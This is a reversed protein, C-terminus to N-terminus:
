IMQVQNLHNKGPFLPHRCMLEAFVCGVAWLDIGEDYDESALVVEPARYWRTVVYKTWAKNFEAEQDAGPQYMKNKDIGRALGFDCIKLDCNTSVLLNCPKIDRHMIDASHLFLLGRLIQYMFYRYHHDSLAQKSMILRNMDAQMKETVIYVDKYNTEHPPRLIDVLRVINEHDFFEASM